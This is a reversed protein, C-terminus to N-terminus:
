SHTTDLTRHPHEVGEHWYDDMRHRLRKTLHEAGRTCWPPCPQDDTWSHAARTM